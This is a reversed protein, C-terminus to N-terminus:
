ILPRRALVVSIPGAQWTCRAEFGVEALAAIEEDLPLYTDEEAWEDFLEQARELSIGARVMHDIWFRYLTEREVPDSPMNADANVFVGGPRLADFVRGYLERKDGITPIHHLALSATVADCAPIEEDFSREQFRVRDGFDALRERAHGLMEQDVDVLEVVGVGDRELLAAALGGTGAGLDVVLSPVIAAAHGAAEGLMTEYGPIFRRISEDYEDIELRLHKRVSHAM